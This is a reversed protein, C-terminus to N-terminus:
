APIREFPYSAIALKIDEPQPTTIRTSFPYLLARSNNIHGFGIAHGAEHCGTGREMNVTWVRDADVTIDGSLSGGQEMFDAGRPQLAMGLTNGPLPKFDIRIDGARQLLRFKIDCVDSWPQFWHKMILEDTLYALSEPKGNHNVSVTVAEGRDAKAWRLGTAESVGGCGDCPVPDDPEPEPASDPEPEIAAKKREEFFSLIANRQRWSTRERDLGLAAAFEYLYTSREGALLRRARVYTTLMLIASM